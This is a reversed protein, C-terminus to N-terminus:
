DHLVLTPTEAHITVKKTLSPDFLKQLLTRHRTLIVLAESPHAEMHDFLGDRISENAVMFNHVERGTKELESDLQALQEGPADKGPDFVHLLDIVSNFPATIDILRQAAERSGPLLDTAFTVRKFGFFFANVPIALVPRNARGVIGATTSGIVMEQLATSGRTGMAILDVDFHDAATLILETTDGERIFTEFEVKSEESNLQEELEKMNREAEAQLRDRLSRIASRSSYPKDYVSLIYMKGGTLELIARAYHLADISNKSFDTPVLIKKM